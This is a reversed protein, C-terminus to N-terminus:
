NTAWRQPLGRYHRKKKPHNKNAGDLAKRELERFRVILKPRRPQHLLKTPPSDTTSKKVSLGYIGVLFATLVEVSVWCLLFIFFLFLHTSHRRRRRDCDQTHTHTHTGTNPLCPHLTSHPPSMHELVRVYPSHIPSLPFPPLYRCLSPPQSLSGLPLTCRTHVNTTLSLGAKEM